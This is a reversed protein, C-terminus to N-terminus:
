KKPFKYWDTQSKGKSETWGSFNPYFSDIRVGSPCSKFAGVPIKIGYPFTVDENVYYASNGGNGKYGKSTIGLGPLHVEIRSSESKSQSYNIIYPNIDENEIDGKNIGNLIRTIVLPGNVKHVDTTLIISNTEPEDVAGEPLTITGRKQPDIQIAFANQDVSSNNFVFCDEVKNVYNYQNFTITRTHEVVVDNMDYDGGGPWNDEYAYTRPSITTTTLKEMVTTVMNEAPLEAMTHIAKNPSATVTFLIDDLSNDGTGDEVGYVLSEDPLKLAIYRNTGSLSSYLAADAKIKGTKRTNYTVGDETIDSGNISGSGFGNSLIFFGVQTRPPFYKSVNGNEDEYLLQFRMNAYAPAERGPYFANSKGQVGFPVHGSVSVNPLIIYKKIKSLDPTTGIEHFFYGISNENWGAETLMTFWIEANEVEQIEGNEDIYSELVQVNVDNVRYKSNNLGSPKSTKGNWLKSQIDTIVNSSLTGPTIIDNENNTRGYVNWGGNITYFNKNVDTIENSNLARIVYNEGARTLVGRSAPTEENRIQAVGDIVDGEKLMPVGWTPSYIFLHNACAPISMTGHFAGKEDLFTSFLVDGKPSQDNESIKALPNNEYVEVYARGAFSGYDIDLTVDNTTDFNFELNGLFEEYTKQPDEYESCGCIGVCVIVVTLLKLVNFTKM